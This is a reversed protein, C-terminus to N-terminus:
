HGHGAGAEQRESEEEQEWVDIDHQLKRIADDRIAAEGRFPTNLAIILTVILGFSTAILVMITAHLWKSGFDMFWCCAICLLIGCALVRWAIPPLAGESSYHIRQRRAEVLENCRGIFEDILSRPLRPTMVSTVPAATAPTTTEPRRPQRMGARLVREYLVRLTDDNVKFTSYTDSASSAMEHWEVTDRAVYAQVDRAAAMQEDSSIIGAFPHPGAEAAEVDHWIQWLLSTEHEVADRARDYYTWAVLVILAFLVANIVGTIGAAHGLSEAHKHRHEVFLKSLLLQGAVAVVNMLLLLSWPHRVIGQLAHM